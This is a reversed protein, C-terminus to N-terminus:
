AFVEGATVRAGRAWDGAPMAKKGAARVEGLRVPTTATGVLVGSKEVHLEGPKLEPGDPLPTVPGLKVRDDRFTTWPGPAPTCARIRRDVAFAPDGWRVRADEVTLKPALSVGDAPQPVARATGAGIADLVAVLLGAGSHALRELLDGSTDAPRIEDTVTGYVPGTDLGEELEFVSAGTLEDGHLVAHQVPAAGRWAPLLSFHLNIWGHRPIELAVPPVLAGYAVVPVCDPALERLRDLFEPERPRAPTLVEVGHADAWAGVPSRVLGRGRGAPADPRTVVALLEHGSAAIADLAPVAVAPTGAFVLRM